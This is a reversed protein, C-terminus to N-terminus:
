KGISDVVECGIPDFKALAGAEKMHGAAEPNARMAEFDEKSRWQAYNVVRKGDFSKHISASIFGPLNKMTRATAEVLLTALKEQDTPEVTFVNILTFIGSGKAISAM